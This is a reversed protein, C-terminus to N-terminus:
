KGQTSVVANKEIYKVASDLNAAKLARQIAAESLDTSVSVWAPDKDNASTIEFAKNDAFWRAVKKYQGAKIGVIYGDYEGTETGIKKVTLKGESLEGDLEVQTNKKKAIEILKKSIKEDNGSLLKIKKGSPTKLFLFDNEWILQGNFGAETPVPAVPRKIGEEKDETPRPIGHDPDEAFSNLSLFLCCVILLVARM